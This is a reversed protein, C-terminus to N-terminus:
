QLLFNFTITGTVGVPQGSLLTPTFRWGWAAQEAAEQLLPHGSVAKAAIVIGCEDVRVFVVVPGSAQAMVAQTPYVPAPKSIAKGNLVGGYIPETDRRAFACGAYNPLSELNRMAEASLTVVEVNGTMDEARAATTPTVIEGRLPTTPMHYALWATTAAVGLGFTALAIALGLMKSRM